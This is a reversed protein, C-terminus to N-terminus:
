GYNLLFKVGAGLFICGQIIRQFLSLQQMGQLIVRAHDRDYQFRVYPGYAQPNNDIRM